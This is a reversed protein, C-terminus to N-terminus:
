NRLHKKAKFCLQITSNDIKKNCNNACKKQLIKTYLFKFSLYLLVIFIIKDIWVLVVCCWM